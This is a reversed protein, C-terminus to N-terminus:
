PKFRFLRDGVSEFTVVVVVFFDLTTKKKEKQYYVVFVESILAERLTPIEYPAGCYSLVIESAKRWPFSWSHPFSQGM